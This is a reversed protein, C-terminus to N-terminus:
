FRFDLGFNLGHAWIDGANRLQRPEPPGVQGAGTLVNLIPHFTPNLSGSVQDAARLVSSWYLFNYGVSLGCSSSLAFRLSTNLDVIAGFKDTSSNGVNTSSTYFGGIGAAGPFGVPTANEGRVALNSQSDGLGVKGEVKVAWRDDFWLLRVGAQGGYFHNTTKFQDFTNLGGGIGSGATIEVTDQMGMYRFGFLGEFGFCDSAYFPGSYNLEGGWWQLATYVSAAGDIRAGNINGSVVASYNGVPGIGATDLSSRFPLLIAPNGDPTSVVSRRNDQQPLWFFVVEAHACRDYSVPLARTITLRGGHYPGRDVNGNVVSVFGPADAGLTTVFGGLNRNPDNSEGLVPNTFSHPKVFYLLYEFDTTWLPGVYPQYDLNAVEASYPQGMPPAPVNQVPFQARAAACAALALALSLITRRM